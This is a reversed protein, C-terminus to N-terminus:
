DGRPRRECLCNECGYAVKLEVGEWSSFKDCTSRQSIAVRMSKQKLKSKTTPSIHASHHSFHAAAYEDKEAVNVADAADAAEDVLELGQRQDIRELIGAM